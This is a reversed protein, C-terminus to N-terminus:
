RICDLQDVVMIGITSVDACIIETDKEIKKNTGKTM